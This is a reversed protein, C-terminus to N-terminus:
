KSKNFVSIFKGKFNLVYLADDKTIIDTPGHFGEDMIDVLAGEHTYTIVRNNEFDVAILEADNVFIGTTATMSEAEGITKLHEGKRSFTKVLNNYADAVIIQDKYFQVDTPYHLGAGDKGKQGFSKNVKGEQYIIRHNYFDAVVLNGDEFDVGAPGDPVEVLSITDFTEAANLRLIHDSGYDAVYLQGLSSSIHMPRDLDEIRKIMDGEQNILVLQNNDTDSIWMDDGHFAVGNPSIEGLDIDHSFDWYAKSQCGSLLGVSLIIFCIHQNIQKM